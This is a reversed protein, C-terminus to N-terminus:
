VDRRYGAALRARQMSSMGLVLSGQVLCKLCKKVRNLIWKWGCIRNAHLRRGRTRRHLTCM